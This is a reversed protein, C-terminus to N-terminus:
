ERTIVANRPQTAPGPDRIRVSHNAANGELFLSDSIAPHPLNGSACNFVKTILPDPKGDLALVAFCDGTFNLRWTGTVNGIAAPDRVPWSALVGAFAALVLARM